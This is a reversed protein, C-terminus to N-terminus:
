HRVWPAFITRGRGEPLCFPDPQGALDLDMVLGAGQRWVLAIRGNSVAARATQNTLSGTTLQSAAEWGGDSWARYFVEQDGETELDGDV